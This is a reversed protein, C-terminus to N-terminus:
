DRKKQSRVVIYIIISVLVAFTIFHGWLGGKFIIGFFEAMIIAAAITLGEVLNKASIVMKKM